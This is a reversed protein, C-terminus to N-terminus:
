SSTGKPSTLTTLPGIPSGVDIQDANTLVPVHIELRMPHVEADYGEEKVAVDFKVNVMVDQTHVNAEGPGSVLARWFPVITADTARPDAVFVKTFSGCRVCMNIAIHTRDGPPTMSLYPSYPVFKHYKPPAAQLAAPACDSGSFFCRQKALLM